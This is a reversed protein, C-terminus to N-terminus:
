MSFFIIGCDEEHTRKLKASNIQKENINVDRVAAERLASHYDTPLSCRFGAWWPTKRTADVLHCALCESKAALPARPRHRAPAGLCNALKTHPVRRRQTIHPHRSIATPNGRIGRSSFNRPLLRVNTRQVLHALEGEGGCHTSSQGCSGERPAQSCRESSLSPPGKLTHVHGSSYCGCAMRNRESPACHKTSIKKWM